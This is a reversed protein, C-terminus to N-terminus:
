LEDHEFKKMPKVGKRYFSNYKKDKKSLEGEIPAKGSVDIIWKSIKKKNNLKSKDYKVFKGNAEDYHLLAPFVKIPPLEVDEGRVKISTITEKTSIMGIKVKGLFDIALSKLMPSIEKSPSILLFKPEKEFENFWTNFGESVGPFKKVYNKLRSTLFSVMPKLTRDGNYTEIAHNKKANTPKGEYKPPRFVMLTPFSQVKYKQCLPKNSEKDCNVAAVNVALQSDKHIFKALKQYVPQLKVCYGCWPAYFKVISTYNSKLVVKDFNSPTLEYINQDGGYIDGQALVIATAQLLGLVYTAFIMVIKKSVRSRRKESCIDDSVYLHCM